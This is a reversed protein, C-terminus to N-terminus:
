LDFCERVARAIGGGSTSTENLHDTACLKVESPAQGMAFGRGTVALMPIDNMWDGVSVCADLGFGHEKAILEVASGKTGGKARAIMGWLDGRRLPFAAAQVQHDLQSQITFMCARLTAEPGLTVMATIGGDQWLPHDVVRETPRMDASWIRVFDLFPEGTEDHVITNEAFLFTPLAHESVFDRLRGAAEPVVGCHMLTRDGSVEVLHSGDACAVTGKIGIAHAAARTGAYLRGTAITVVIGNDICRKLAERDIDHPDGESNLLTGDLDVAILRYGGSPKATRPRTPISPSM